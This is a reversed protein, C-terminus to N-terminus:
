ISMTAVEHRGSDANYSVDPESSKRVFTAEMDPISAPDVWAGPDRGPM